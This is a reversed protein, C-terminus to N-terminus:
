SKTEILVWDPNGSKLDRTFTWLDTIEEVRGEAGGIVHGGADRLINQQDTVFRVTITAQVGELSAAATEADRVRVLKSQLTQGAQKRADISNQFRAMVKSGFLKDCATLDGGAFAAVIRAFAEKAGRLFQKEDFAPDVTKIQELEGMLSHAPAHSAPPSLPAGPKSPAIPGQTGPAAFPNPRAGDGGNRRGLVTWLRALILVAIVAYVIVDTDMPNNYWRLELIPLGHGSTIDLVLTLAFCGALEQTAIVLLDLMLQPSAKDM